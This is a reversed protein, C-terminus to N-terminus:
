GICSAAYEKVEEVFQLYAQAGRSRPDYELVSQGFSPSESV